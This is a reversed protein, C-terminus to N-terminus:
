HRGPLFFGAPRRSLDHSQRRSVALAMGNLSVWPCSEHAGSGMGPAMAVPYNAIVGMMLTGVAAAICTAVFVAGFDMGADSLIDPNVVTIYAMALFTTLGAIVERRATTGNATLGFKKDLYAYM